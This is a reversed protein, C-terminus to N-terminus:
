DSKLHNRWRSSRQTIEKIEKPVDPTSIKETKVLARNDTKKTIKANAINMSEPQEKLRMTIKVEKDGRQVKIPVHQGPHAFFTANRLDVLHGLPMDNFELLKDGTKLGAEFAPDGEMIDGIVLSPPSKFLADENLEIGLYAYSVKGSFVLDDRIRMVARAPVIFSSRISEVSVIMVGVFRGNLDFIPSGGEGGDSPINTRLFTTPFIEGFFTTHWGTVMGMSPGPDMGLKCTIGLLMTSPEPIDMAEGLHLFSINSTPKRALRVIAINTSNDFGVLEAPYPSGNYEVWICQGENVVNAITMIHGERSIFFGTGIDVQQVENSEKGPESPVSHYGFVRVVATKKQNFIETIRDQLILFDNALLTAPM